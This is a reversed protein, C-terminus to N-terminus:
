WWLVDWTLQHCVETYYCFHYDWPPGCMIIAKGDGGGEWGGGGGGGVGMGTRKIKNKYVYQKVEAIESSIREFVGQPNNSLKGEASINFAWM